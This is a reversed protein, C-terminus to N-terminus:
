ADPPPDYGLTVAAEVILRRLETILLAITANSEGRALSDEVDLVVECLEVALGRDQQRVPPDINHTFNHTPGFFAAEAGTRDGANLFQIVRTLATYEEDFAQQSIESTGLPPLEQDCTGGSGGGLVESMLFFGGVIIVALAGLGLGWAWDPLGQTRRRRSRRTM